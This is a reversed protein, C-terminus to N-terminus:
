PDTAYGMMHWEFHNIGGYVDLDADPLEVIVTHKILYIDLVEPKVYRLIQENDKEKIWPIYKIGDKEKIEIAM